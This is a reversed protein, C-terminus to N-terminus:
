VSSPVERGRRPEVAHRSIGQQFMGSMISTFLIATAVFVAAGAVLFITKVGFRDYLEGALPAALLPALGYMTATFVSQATSAIHHPVRETIFQVASSFFLGFGLGKIM